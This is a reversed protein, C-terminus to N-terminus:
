PAVVVVLAEADLDHALRQLRRQALDGLVGALVARHDGALHEVLVLVGPAEVRLGALVLVQHLGADDVRGLDHAGRQLVGGRDGAQQDGGLRHDGLLGLLGARHRGGAAAPPMPPMPPMPPISKEEAPEGPGVAPLAGSLTGKQKPAPHIASAPERCITGAVSHGECQPRFFEHQGLGLDLFVVVDAGDDDRVNQRRVLHLAKAADRVIEDLAGAADGRVVLDVVELVAVGRVVRAHAPDLGRVQVM